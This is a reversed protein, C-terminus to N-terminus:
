DFYYVHIELFFGIPKDNSYSDLEFNKPNVWDPIETSLLPKM